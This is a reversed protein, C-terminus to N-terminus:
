GLVVGFNAPDRDRIGSAARTIDLNGGVGLEDKSGLAGIERMGGERLQEDDGFIKGIDPSDQGSPSLPRGAVRLDPSRMQRDDVAFRDARRFELRVPRSEETPAM